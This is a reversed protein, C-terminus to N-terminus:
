ARPQALGLKEACLAQREALDRMILWIAAASAGSFVLSIILVVNGATAPRGDFSALVSAGAGAAGVVGSALYTGWWSPFTRPVDRLRWADRSEAELSEPDSARWIEKLAQYPKWMSAFPIFWWGVCWGPTFALGAQGFARVNLAANHMWVLFVVVAFLNVVQSGLALSGMALVALLDGAGPKGVATTIASTGVGLVVSAAIAIAGAMTKWGLPRYYAAIHSEARPPAYPSHSMTM